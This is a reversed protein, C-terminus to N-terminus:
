VPVKQTECVENLSLKIIQAPVGQQQIATWVANTEVSDFAKDYDVFIIFLLLRYERSREVLENVAHLHDITSFNKRFGAQEAPQASYLVREIRQSLVKTLLKYVCSLLSIPRYNQLDLPDDKKFLLITSSDGMKETISSTQLCANFLKTLEPVLVDKGLKLMEVTIKDIGPATSSRMKRLAEEVKSQPLAPCEEISEPENYEVRVTSAYLSEYFEKVTRQLDTTTTCVNGENDRLRILRRRGIAAKRRKKSSANTIDEGRSIPCHRVTSSSCPSSM